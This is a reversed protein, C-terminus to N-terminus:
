ILNDYSFVSNYTDNWDLTDYLLSDIIFPQGTPEVVTSLWESYLLGNSLDFILSRGPVGGYDGIIKITNGNGFSEIRLVENSKPAANIGVGNKRYTVTPAATSYRKIPSYVTQTDISVNNNVYAFGTNYVVKCRFYIENKEAINQITFTTEGLIDKLSNYNSDSPVEWSEIVKTEAELFERSFSYELSYTCSPTYAEGSWSHPRNYGGKSNDYSKPWYFYIACDDNGNFSISPIICNKKGSFDVTLEKITITPNERPVGILSNSFESEDSTNYDFSRSDRAQVKVSYEGSSTFLNKVPIKYIVYDTENAKGKNYTYTIGDGPKFSYTSILTQTSTQTSTQYLKVIYESIIQASYSTESDFMILLTEYNMIVDKNSLTDTSSNAGLSPFLDTIKSINGTYTLDTGNFNYIADRGLYVNKVKKPKERFDVTLLISSSKLEDKFPSTFVVRLRLDDHVTRNAEDEACLEYLGKESLLAYSFTRKFNPVDTNNIKEQDLTNKFLTIAENEKTEKYAIIKYELDKNSLKYNNSPIPISLNFADENGLNPRIINVLDRNSEENPLISTFSLEGSKAWYLNDAYYLLNSSDIYISQTENVEANYIYVRIKLTKPNEGINIEETISYSDSTNNTSYKQRQKGLFTWTEPTENSLFAFQYYLSGLDFPVKPLTGTIKINQNKYYKSYKTKDVTDTREITIENTGKEIGGYIQVTTSSWCIDSDELGDSARVGILYHQGAYVKSDYSFPNFTYKYENSDSSHTIENIAANKVDDPSNAAKVYFHINSLEKDNKEKLNTITFTDGTYGPLSETFSIDYSLEPKTNQSIEFKFPESLDWGDYTYAQCNGVYTTNFKSDTYYSNGNEQKWYLQVLMGEKDSGLTYSFKKEEETSKLIYQSVSPKGPRKNIYFTSTANEESINNFNDRISILFKVESGEELSGDIEAFNIDYGFVKSDKVAIEAVAVRRQEHNQTIEANLIIAQIKNTADVSPLEWKLKFLNKESPSNNYKSVYIKDNFLYNTTDLKWTPSSIYEYNLKYEFILYAEIPATALIIDSAVVNGNLNVRLVNESNFDTLFSNLVDSNDGINIITYTDITTDFLHYQPKIIPPEIVPYNKESKALHLSFKAPAKYTKGYPNISSATFQINFKISTIKYQSTDSLFWDTPYSATYYTNYPTGFHHGVAATKGDKINLKIKYQGM